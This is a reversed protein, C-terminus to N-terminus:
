RTFSFKTESHWPTNAKLVCSPFDEHHISDPYLQTELCIGGHKCYVAGHLGKRDDVSNATYVQMGPMDTEVEMTLGSIDGKLVAAKNGNLCFNHDYGGFQQMQKYPDAMDRGIPKAERFDFPLRDVHVFRGTPIAAPTAELFTDANISLIHNLVTGGGNLNFYAHNTLNILTDADSVADYSIILADDETLTYTAKVNLNGPYGGDGDPSFLTCVISDNEGKVDWYRHSYGNDGGHLTNEGNNRDLTYTKGNLSFSAGAIRNAFRGPVAGFHGPNTEYEALTDYGLVTDYIKGDAAKVRLSQISAGYGIVTLETGNGNTITAAPVPKGNAGTGFIFEKIKM